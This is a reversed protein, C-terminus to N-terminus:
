NTQSKYDKGIDNENVNPNVYRFSKKKNHYQIAKQPCRHYCGLCAVCKDGFTIKNEELSVNSAPCVSICKGCKTCANTTHFGQGIKYWNSKNRFHQEERTKVKKPIRQEGNKISEIIKNIKKPASKLTANMYFKPVTFSLTYNEPMKVTHVSKINLGFETGYKYAFYDAGGVMGGYNLIIDVPTTNNLRKFLDFVNDSVTIILIIAEGRCQQLFCSVYCFFHITIFYHKFRAGVLFASQIKVALITKNDVRLM